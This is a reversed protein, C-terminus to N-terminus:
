PAPPIDVVSVASHGTMAMWHGDPSVALRDSSTSSSREFASQEIGTAADWVRVDQMAVAIVRRGDPTFAIDSCMSTEHDLGGPNASDFSLIARPRLPERAVDDNTIAPVASSLGARRDVIGASRFGRRRRRDPQRLTEHPPGGSTHPHSLDQRNISQPAADDGHLGR